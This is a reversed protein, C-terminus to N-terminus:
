IEDEFEVESEDDITDENKDWYEDTAWWNARYLGAAVRRGVEEEERPQLKADEEFTGLGIGLLRIEERPSLDFVTRALTLFMSLRLWKGPTVFKSPLEALFHEWGPQRYFKNHLLTVILHYYLFRAAPRESTKFVLETGDLKALSSRGMDTNRAALNTMQIRWRKIPSEVPDAPLLVFDGESFSREVNRHLLLGNDATNLRASTGPAFLYDVLSPALSRPVIHATKFASIDFFDKSVPCWWKSKPADLWPKYTETVARKMAPPLPHLRYSDAFSQHPDKYLSLLTPVFTGETDPGLAPGNLEHLRRHEIWLTDGMSIIMYNLRKYEKRAIAEDIGQAEVIIDLQQKKLRQEEISLEIEEITLQITKRPDDESMIIDLKEQLDSQSKQHHMALSWTRDSIENSSSAM